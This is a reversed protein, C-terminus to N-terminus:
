ALGAAQLLAEPKQKVPSASAEWEESCGTGSEPRWCHEAFSCRDCKSREEYTVRQPQAAGQWFALHHALQRQFLQEDVPWEIQGILSRDKQWVYSVQLMPDPPGHRMGPQEAASGRVQLSVPRARLLDLHGAAVLAIQELTPSVDKGCTQRALQRVTPSLPQLPQLCLGTDALCLHLSIHLM